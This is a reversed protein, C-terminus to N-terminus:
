VKPYPTKLTHTGDPMHVPEFDGFLIPSVTVLCRWINFAVKRIMLASHESARMNIIHRWARANGSVIIPAETENPLCDRAEQQIKKRLDVKSGGALLSLGEKQLELLRQARKKYEGAVLDIWNEFMRHLIEDNQYVEGEVFRLTEGSVYRQSVQSYAMGARHRVLEHTFARNVGYILFTFNAHELISGHGSNKANEFYKIAQDNLTRNPGFSLYCLQGAAKCLTEASPLPTTDELYNIFKFDEPFSKLFGAMGRLDVWPVSLLALGARKFYPTKKETYFVESDIVPLYGEKTEITYGGLKLDREVM